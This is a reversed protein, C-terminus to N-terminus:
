YTVTSLGKVHMITKPAGHSQRCTMLGFAATIKTMLPVIELSTIRISSVQDL